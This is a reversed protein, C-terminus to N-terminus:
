KKKANVSNEFDPNKLVNHCICKGYYNYLLTYVVDGAEISHIM